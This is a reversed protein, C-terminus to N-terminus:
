LRPTLKSLYIHARWYQCLSARENICCWLWDATESLIYTPLFLRFLLVDGFDSNNMNKRILEDHSQYPSLCHIATHSAIEFWNHVPWTEIFYHECFLKNKMLAIRVGCNIRLRILATPFFHREHSPLVIFKRPVCSVNTEHIFRLDSNCWANAIRIHFPSDKPVM